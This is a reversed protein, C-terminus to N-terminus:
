KGPAAPNAELPSTTAAPAPAPATPAPPTPQIDTLEIDFVLTSAPPIGQRPEDGFALDPPIYLRIKGGKAIKQLGETWGPIMQSLPLAVPEGPTSASFVSGDILKGTYNVTVTDTVKPSPGAGAAAIEYCLGSPLVTVGPQKKLKSLFDASEARGAARLKALYENQKGKVFDDMLPGIKDLENPSPKGQSAETIGKIVLDIQAPSFNLDSLGVRKGIFWGYEELLQADTFKAAPAAAAPAAPATAAPAPPTSSAPMNLKIDQAQLMAIAGSALLCTMLTSTLKM